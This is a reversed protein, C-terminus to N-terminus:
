VHRVPGTPEDEVIRVPRLEGMLRTLAAILEAHEYPKMLFVAAGIRASIEPASPSGSVLVLPPADPLAEMSRALDLVGGQLDDSHIVVVDIGGESILVFAERLTTALVAEHGAERIASGVRDRTDPDAEVLLISGVNPAYM